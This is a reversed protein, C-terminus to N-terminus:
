KTRTPTGGGAILGFYKKQKDTLPEGHVKGHRLIEKAKISSVAKKLKRVWKAM